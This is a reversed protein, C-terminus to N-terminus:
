GDGPCRRQAAFLQLLDELVAIKRRSIDNEKILAHRRSRESLGRALGGENTREFLVAEFARAKGKKGACCRVCRAINRQRLAGPGGHNVEGTRCCSGARSCCPNWRKSRQQRRLRWGGRVARGMGLHIM